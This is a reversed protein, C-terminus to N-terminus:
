VRALGEIIAVYDFAEGSACLWEYDKNRRRHQDIWAVQCLRMGGLPKLTSGRLGLYLAGEGPYAV